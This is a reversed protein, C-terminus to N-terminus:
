RYSIVVIILCNQKGFSRRGMSLHGAAAQKTSPFYHLNSVLLFKIVIQTSM